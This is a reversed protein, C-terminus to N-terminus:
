SLHSILVSGGSATAVLGAYTPTFSVRYLQEASSSQLLIHAVAHPQTYTLLILLLEVYFMVNVTIICSALYCM